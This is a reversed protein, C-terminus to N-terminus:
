EEAARRWERVVGRRSRSVHEWGPLAPMMMVEGVALAALGRGALEPVAEELVM